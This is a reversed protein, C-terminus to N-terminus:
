EYKKRYNGSNGNNRTIKGGVYNNLYNGPSLNIMSSNIGFNLNSASNTNVNIRRGHPNGYLISNSNSSSSAYNKYKAPPIESIFNAYKAQNENIIDTKHTAYEKYLSRNYKQSPYKEKLNSNYRESNIVNNYKNKRNNSISEHISNSPGMSRTRHINHPPSYVIKNINGSVGMNNINNTNDYRSYIKRYNEKNSIYEENNNVNNINNINHNLNINKENNYNSKRNYLVTEDSIRHIRKNTINSNINNMLNDNIRGSIENYNYDISKRSLYDNNINGIRENNSNNNNNNNNNSYKNVVGKDNGSKQGGINEKNKRSMYRLPIKRKSDVTHKSVGYEITANNQPEKATIRKDRQNNNVSNFSNANNKLENVYFHNLTRYPNTLTKKDQTLENNNNTNNSNSNKSMNREKKEQKFYNDHIEKSKNIYKLYTSQDNISGNSINTSYLGHEINPNSINYNYNYSNYVSSNIAKNNNNNSNSNNVVYVSMNDKKHNVLPISIINGKNGKDGNSGSGYKEVCKGLYKAGM